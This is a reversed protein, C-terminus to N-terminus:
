IRQKRIKTYGFGWGGGVIKMLEIKSGDKVIKGNFTTSNYIEGDLDAVVGNAPIKLKELLKTLEIETTEFEYLKDNVTVKM